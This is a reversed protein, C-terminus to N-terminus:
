PTVTPTPTETPPIHGPYLGQGFRGGTHLIYVGSQRTEITIDATLQNYYVGTVEDSLGDPTTLGVFYTNIWGWEVSGPVVNATIDTLYSPHSGDNSQPFSTSVATMTLPIRIPVPTRNSNMYIRFEGYQRTEILLDGTLLDRQVRTVEDSLGNSTTLNYESFFTNIWEWEQTGPFIQARIDIQSLEPTPTAQIPENPHATQHASVTMTIPLSDLMAVLTANMGSSLTPYSLSVQQSSRTLNNILSMIVWFILVLSWGSGRTWTGTTRTYVTRPRASTYNPPPSAPNPRPTPGASTAARRWFDYNSRETPDNLIGNAWNIDKMREAAHPDPNLDPHYQRALRRFAQRVQDPTATSPLGLIYYPDKDYRIPM